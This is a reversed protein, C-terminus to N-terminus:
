EGAVPTVVAQFWGNYTTEDTDPGSKAKVLYETGILAPGASLNLTETRVDRSEGATESSVAARSATCNYLVHRIQHADGTFEFLLAFNKTRADSHEFMVNKSDLTEGLVDTRFSDPILATELSGSYGNNAYTDYYVGDDAYFKSESGEPEMSLSVAGPWRVPTGFTLAGGTGETAIAYYVNKLGFKVKNAANPM